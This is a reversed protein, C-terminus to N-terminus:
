IIGGIKEILLAAFLLVLYCISLTFLRNAAKKRAETGRRLRLALVTLGAGSAVAAAGYARGM